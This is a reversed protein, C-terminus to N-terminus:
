VVHAPEVGEPPMREVTHLFGSPLKDAKATLQRAWKRFATEIANVDDKSLPQMHAILRRPVNMDGSVLEEFWSPRPFIEEFDSGRVRVIKALDTLLV